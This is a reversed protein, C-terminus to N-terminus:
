LSTMKVIEILCDSFVTSFGLHRPQKLMSPFLGPYVKGFQLGRFKWRKCWVGHVQLSPDRWGQVQLLFDTRVFGNEVLLNRLIPWMDSDLIRELMGLLQRFSFLKVNSSPNWFVLISYKKGRFVFLLMGKYCLPFMAFSEQSSSPQLRQQTVEGCSCPTGHDINM